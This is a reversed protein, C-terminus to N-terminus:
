APEKWLFPGAINGSVVSVFFLYGRLLEGVTAAGGRRLTSVNVHFNSHDELARELLDLSM